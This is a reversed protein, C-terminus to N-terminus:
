SPFERRIKQDLGKTKAKLSLWLPGWGNIDSNTFHYMTWPLHGAHM